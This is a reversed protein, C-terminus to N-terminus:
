SAVRLRAHAARLQEVVMETEQEVEFWTFRLTAFGALFHERDRARDDTFAIFTDHGRRGDTEVILGLEHWVFDIRHRGRVRQVQPLSVGAAACLEFFHAELENETLGSGIVYRNLLERLSRPIGPRVLTTLDLGDYEAARLLARLSQAGLYPACDIVTQAPSTVPIGRCTGVELRRAHHVEIEKPGRAGSRGVVTVQPKAPWHDRWSLIAAATFRSAYADPECRRVAAYARSPKSPHPDLAYVGRHLRWLRETAVLHKVADKSLGLGRLEDLTIVRQRARTAIRTLLTM